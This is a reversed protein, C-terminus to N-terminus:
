KSLPQNWELDSWPHVVFGQVLSSTKKPKKGFVTVGANCTPPNCTNVVRATGCGVAAAKTKPDIPLDQM